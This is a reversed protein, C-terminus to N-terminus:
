TTCHDVHVDEVQHCLMSDEMHKHPRTHNRPLIGHNHLICPPITWAWTRRTQKKAMADGMVRFSDLALGAKNTKGELVPGKKGKRETRRRDLGISGRETGEGGERENRNFRIRDM